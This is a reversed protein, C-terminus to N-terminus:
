HIDRETPLAITRDGMMGRNYASINWYGVDYAMTVLINPKQLQQAMAPAGGITAAAALALLEPWIDKALSM